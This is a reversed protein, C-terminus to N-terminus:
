LYTECSPGAMNDTLYRKQTYADGYTHLPSSPQHLVNPNEELIPMPAARHKGKATRASPPAAIGQYFSIPSIRPVGARVKRVSDQPVHTSFRGLDGRSAVARTKEFEFLRRHQDKSSHVRIEPLGENNDGNPNNMSIDLFEYEYSSSADDAVHDNPQLAADTVHERNAELAALQAKLSKIKDKHSQTYVIPKRASGIENPPSPEFHLQKWPPATDHLAPAASDRRHQQLTGMKIPKRISLIEAAPLLKFSAPDHPIPAALAPALLQHESAVHAPPAGLRAPPVVHRAPPMVFHAPNCLVPPPLTPASLQSESAMAPPVLEDGPGEGSNKGHDSAPIFHVLCQSNLDEAVNDINVNPMKCRRPMKLNSYKQDKVQLLEKGWRDRVLAIEGYEVSDVDCARKETVRLNINWRV